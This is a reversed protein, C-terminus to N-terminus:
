LTVTVSKKVKNPSELKLLYKKWATGGGFGGLSGDKKIVRHCPILVPVPNKGLANGVARAAKPRGLHRAIWEYSRTEGFPISDTKKWVAVEFEGFGSLDLPCTFKIKKGSYYAQLQKGTKKIFVPPKIGDPKTVARSPFSIERIGKKSYTIKM